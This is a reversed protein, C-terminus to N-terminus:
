MSSTCSVPQAADDAGPVDDGILDGAVDTRQGVGLTHRHLRQILQQTAPYLRQLEGDAFLARLMEAQGQLSRVSFGPMRSAAMTRLAAGDDGAAHRHDLGAVM